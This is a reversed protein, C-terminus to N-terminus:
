RWNPLKRSGEVALGDPKQLQAQLREARNLLARASTVLERLESHASGNERRLPSRGPNGMGEVPCRTEEAVLRVHTSLFQQEKWCRLHLYRDADGSKIHRNWWRIRKSCEVCRARTVLVIM